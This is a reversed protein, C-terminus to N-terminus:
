LKEWIFKYKFINLLAKISTQNINVNYYKKYELGQNIGNIIINFKGELNGFIFLLFNGENDIIFSTNAVVIYKMISRIFSNKYHYILFFEITEIIYNDVENYATKIQKNFEKIDLDNIKDIIAKSEFNNNEPIKFYYKM